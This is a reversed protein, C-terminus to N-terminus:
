LPAVTFKMISSGNRLKAEYTGKGLDTIGFCESSMDYQKLWWTLEYCIRQDVIKWTGSDDCKGTSGALRVCAAGDARWEFVVAQGRSYSELFGNTSWTKGSALARVANADLDAAGVPLAILWATFVLGLSYAKGRNAM